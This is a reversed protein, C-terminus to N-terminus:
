RRENRQRERGETDGAQQILTRDLADLEQDPPYGAQGVGIRKELVLPTELARAPDLALTTTITFGLRMQNDLVSWLDSMNTPSDGAQGVATRIEYPQASLDGVLYDASLIPNHVLAGLTWWLLRHEDEVERAWATVLYSLDFRLHPQRLNARRGDDSVRMEMNRLKVNERLDFCWLNITPAGLRASWERTPQDFSVEIGKQNLQGQETLLKKLSNDLDNLM